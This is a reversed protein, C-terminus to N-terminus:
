GILLGASLRPFNAWGELQGGVVLELQGGVVRGGEKGDGGAMFLSRERISVNM